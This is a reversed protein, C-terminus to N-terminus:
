ELELVKFRGNIKLNDIQESKKKEFVKDKVVEQNSLDNIKRYLIYKDEDQFLYIDFNDSFTKLKIETECSSCAMEFIFVKNFDIYERNLLSDNTDCTIDLLNIANDCFPCKLLEYKELDIDTGSYFM